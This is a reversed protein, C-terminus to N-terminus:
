EDKDKKEKNENFFIRNLLEALEEIRRTTQNEVNYQLPMAELVQFNTTDLERIIRNVDEVKMNITVLERNIEEDEIPKTEKLKSGKAYSRVLEFNDRNSIKLESDDYRLKKKEEGQMNNYSKVYLNNNKEMAYCNIFSLSAMFGATILIIKLKKM